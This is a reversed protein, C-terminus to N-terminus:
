KITSILTMDALYQKASQTELHVTKTNGYAAL